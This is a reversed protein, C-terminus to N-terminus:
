IHILSLQGTLDRTVKRRFSARSVPYAQYNPLDPDEHTGAKRHHELHGRAYSPQDNMVPLACLWQGIVDNLWQTRFLTRHGAEHMLVSLGLQRGALLVLALLITLPNPYAAVVAFILAIALWNGAVLGWARADSKATFQSVEDPSLYDAIKM